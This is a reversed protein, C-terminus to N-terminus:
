QDFCYKCKRYGQLKAQYPTKFTVLKENPQSAISRCNRSRHFYKYLNQSSFGYYLNGQIYDILEDINDTLANQYVANGKILFGHSTKHAKEHVFRYNKSDGNKVISEYIEKLKDKEFVAYKDETGIIWFKTNDDKLVGSDVWRGNSTLRENYEIYVNGTEAFKADRKIEVGQKNEGHFQGQEDTFFGLDCNKAKFKSNVWEEFKHGTTLQKKFYQTENKRSKDWYVPAGLSDKHEKQWHDLYQNYEDIVSQTPQFDNYSKNNNKVVKTFWYLHLRDIATLNQYDLHDM